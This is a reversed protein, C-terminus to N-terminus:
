TGSHPPPDSGESREPGSGGSAPGRTPCVQRLGGGMYSEILTSRSLLLDLNRVSAITGLRGEGAFTTNM